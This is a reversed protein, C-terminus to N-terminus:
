MKCRETAHCKISTARVNTAFHFDEARVYNVRCSISITVITMPYVYYNITNMRRDSKWVLFLLPCLSAHKPTMLSYKCRKSDILFCRTCTESSSSSFPSYPHNITFATSLTLKSKTLKSSFRNGCTLSVREFRGENGSLWRSARNVQHFSYQIAIRDSRLFYVFGESCDGMYDWAWKLPRKLRASTCRSLMWVSFLDSFFSQVFELENPTVLLREEVKEGKTGYRIRGNFYFSSCKTVNRANGAFLVSRDVADLVFLDAPTTKGVLEAFDDRDSM